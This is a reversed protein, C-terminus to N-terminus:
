RHWTFGINDKEAIGAIVKATLKRDELDFFSYVLSRAAMLDGGTNVSAQHIFGAMDSAALDEVLKLARVRELASYAKNGVLYKDLYPRVEPSNWQTDKPATSVLGGGLDLLIDVNDGGHESCLWKNASSKVVDPLWVGSPHKAGEVEAGIAAAYAEEAWSILISLKQRAHSTDQIGNVEAALAAAGILLDLLGAKCGGKASFHTGMGLITSKELMEWEGCLFVREWPVFVDDFVTMFVPDGVGARGFPYDLRLDTEQARKTPVKGIMVVGKTDLPIACAIAFDKDEATPTYRGKLPSPVILLENVTSGMSVNNKCGRIVIGDKKREVVRVFSDPQEHPPKTRDGRADIVAGACLNDTKQMYKVWETFRKHYETNYAQDLEYTFAWYGNSIDEQLCRFVCIRRRNIVRQIRTRSIWQEPGEHINAFLNVEEDILPSTVISGMERYLPSSLEARLGAQGRVYPLIRPDEYPKELKEGDLYITPKQSVTEELWQAADRVAM